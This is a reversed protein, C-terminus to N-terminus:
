ACSMTIEPIFNLKREDFVEKAAFVGNLAAPFGAYLVLQTMSEIIEAGSCGRYGIAQRPLEPAVAPLNRWVRFQHGIAWSRPLHGGHCCHDCSQRNGRCHVPM